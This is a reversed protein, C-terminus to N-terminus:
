AAEILAIPSAAYTMGSATCTSSGRCQPQLSELTWLTPTGDERIFEPVPISVATSSTWLVACRQAIWTLDIRPKNHFCFKAKHMRVFALARPSVTIKSTKTLFNKRMTSHFTFPKTHKTHRASLLALLSTM